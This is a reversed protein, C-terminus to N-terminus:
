LMPMENGVSRENKAELGAAPIEEATKKKRRIEELLREKNPLLSRPVSDLYLEVDDVIGKTFLNDMTTQMALESWYASEGVDVRLRLRMERLRDFDVPVRAPAADEGGTGADTLRQGYNVSMMDLLVRMTNEVFRYYELKQLELPMASAKQVAIIASTNDAKIDGLAADSAGMTEKTYQILLRIMELAQGSMETVGTARTVAANVDGYAGVARGVENNWGDPFMRKDYVLKPFAGDKVQKLCMAFLRNIDIQNPIVPTMCSQGHYCNKVQEWNMWVLPYRSYGLDTDKKLLVGGAAEAAHVTGNEKWLRRLVTVRAANDGDEQGDSDAAIDDPDMGAAKARRRVESLLERRALLIYPQREVESASRNGFYVNTNDLLEARIVGKTLDGTDEEPDFWCYLCCDGDVAADRLAYRNKTKLEENEFIAEFERNVAELLMKEEPTEDGDIREAKAAIDDSVLMSIFYSVVRKLINLVPKPLSPAQVGEWQRGVYFNENRKVTEYLGIGENYSRGEAYEEELQRAEIM